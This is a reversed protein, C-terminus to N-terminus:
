IVIVDGCRLSVKPDNIVCRINKEPIVCYLLIINYVMNDVYVYLIIYICSHIYNSRTQMYTIYSSHEFAIFTFDVCGLQSGILPPSQTEIFIEGLIIVFFKRTFL